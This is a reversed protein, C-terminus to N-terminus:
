LEINLEKFIPRLDWDKPNDGQDISEGTDIASLRPSIGHNNKHDLDAGNNLLLTIIEKLEDEGRYDFIAALLPSNGEDDALEIDCNYSLLLKFPEVLQENTLIRLATLQEDETQTNIDLGNAILLDIIEKPDYPFDDPTEIYYHLINLGVEGIFNVDAGNEIEAKVKSIDDTILANQLKKYDDM